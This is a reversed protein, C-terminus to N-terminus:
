NGVATFKNVSRNWLWNVTIFLTIVWIFALLVSWYAQNVTTQGLYIEIPVAFGFQFPLFRSLREMWHPYLSLPLLSGSFIGTLIWKLHMFSNAQEFFFSGAVIALSLMFEICFALVGMIILLLLQSPSPIIFLQRYFIFIFFLIPITSLMITLLRWSLTNMLSHRQYSFPRIFFRAMTGQNVERVGEEEFHTSVISDFLSGMVYYTLLTPLTFNGVQNGSTYVSVWLVIMALLPIADIIRWLILEERYLIAVQWGITFIVWYKHLIHKM